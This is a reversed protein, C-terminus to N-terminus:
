FRTKDSIGQILVSHSMIQVRRILTSTTYHLHVRVAILLSSLMTNQDYEMIPLLPGFIEDQMIRMDPTVGTLLTPPVKRTDSFTEHAPNIEVVQAGHERANELYGQLRNYQRDNIISTYDPNHLIYPYM